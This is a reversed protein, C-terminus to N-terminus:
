QGLIDLRAAITASHATHQALAPLVGLQNWHEAHGSLQQEVPREPTYQQLSSNM